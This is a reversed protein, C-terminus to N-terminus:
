PIVFYELTTTSFTVPCLLRIESDVQVQVESPENSSSSFTLNPPASVSTSNSQSKTNTAGLNSGDSSCLLLLFLYLDPSPLLLLPKFNLPPVLLIKLKKVMPNLLCMEITMSIKILKKKTAQLNFGENNKQQRKCLKKMKKKLYLNSAWGKM